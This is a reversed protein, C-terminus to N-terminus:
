EGAGCDDNFAAQLIGNERHEHHELERIFTEIESCVCNWIEPGGARLRGGLGDLTQLMTVHEALLEDAELAFRPAMKLASGLHGDREEADFHQQLHERIDAVRDALEQCKPGIGLEDVEHWFQQLDRIKQLLEQHEALLDGRLGTHEMIPKM